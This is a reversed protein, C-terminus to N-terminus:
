PLKDSVVWVQWNAADISSVCLQDAQGYEDQGAEVQTLRM